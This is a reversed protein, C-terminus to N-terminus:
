KISLIVRRTKNNLDLYSTRYFGINKNNLTGIYYLSLRCYSSGTLTENIKLILNDKTYEHKVSVRRWGWICTVELYTKNEIISLNKSRLSIIGTNNILTFDIKVNGNFTFNNIELNPNLELWYRHPIVSSSLVFIIQM